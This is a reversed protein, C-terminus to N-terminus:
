IRPVNIFFQCQLSQSVQPTITRYSGEMFAVLIGSPQGSLWIIESVCRLTNKNLVQDVENQAKPPLPDTAVACSLPDKRLTQQVIEFFVENGPALSCTSAVSTSISHAM